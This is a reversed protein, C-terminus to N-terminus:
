EKLSAHGFNLDEIVCLKQARSPKIKPLFIDNGSRLDLKKHLYMECFSSEFNKSCKSKLPECISLYM